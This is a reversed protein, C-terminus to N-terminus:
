PLLPPWSLAAEPSRRCSVLQPTLWRSAQRLCARVPPGSNLLGKRSPSGTLGEQEEAICTNRQVHKIIVLRRIALLDWASQKCVTCHQQLCITNSSSHRCAEQSQLHQCVTCSCAASRAYCLQTCHALSALCQKHLQQM